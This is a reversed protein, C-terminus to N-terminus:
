RARRRGRRRPAKANEPGSPQEVFVGLDRLKRILGAKFTFDALEVLTENIPAVKGGGVAIVCSATHSDPCRIVITPELTVKRCQDFCGKIEYEVNPPM